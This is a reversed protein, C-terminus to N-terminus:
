MYTVSTMLALFRCQESRLQWALSKQKSNKKMMHYM